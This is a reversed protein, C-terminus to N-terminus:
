NVGMFMNVTAIRGAPTFTVTDVGRGVVDGSPARMSWRLLLTDGSVLEQDYAFVLGKAAILDDHVKGIHETIANVGALTTGLSSVSLRGDESWLRSITESRTSPDRETWSALYDSAFNNPHPDTMPGAFPRPDASSIASEGSFAMDLASGM